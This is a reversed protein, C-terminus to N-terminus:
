LLDGRYNLRGQHLRKHLIGVEDRAQGDDSVGLHLQLEQPTTSGSLRAKPKTAHARVEGVLRTFPIVGLETGAHGVHKTVHSIFCPVEGGEGGVETPTAEDRGNVRM